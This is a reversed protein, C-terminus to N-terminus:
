RPLAAEREVAVKIALILITYVIPLAAITWIPVSYDYAMWCSIIWPPM